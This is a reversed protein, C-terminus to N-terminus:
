KIPSKYEEVTVTIKIPWMDTKYYDELLKAMGKGLKLAKEKNTGDVLFHTLCSNGASYFYLTYAKIQKNM